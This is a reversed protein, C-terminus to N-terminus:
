KRFNNSIKNILLSKISRKIRRPLKKLRSTQIAVTENVLNPHFLKNSQTSFSFKGSKKAIIEAQYDSSEIFLFHNKQKKYVDAKFYGYPKTKQRESKDNLNLMILNDYDLNWKKLWEETLLRYKELRNTVLAGIRYTPLFKPNANTLFNIYNEGDDNQDSTPDECLVGDIDMCYFQSSSRHFINWEFFRPQQLNEFYIDIKDKSKNTAFAAVKVIELDVFLKQIRDLAITLTKGSDISDDCLIIKKINLSKKISRTRGHSPELLNLFEELSQIPFNLHLALITALLMGSRPIGVVLDVDRPIFQLNKRVLDSLDSVSRYNM